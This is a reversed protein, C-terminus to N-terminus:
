IFFLTNVLSKFKLRSNKLSVEKQRHFIYICKEGCLDRLTNGDQVCISGDCIHTKLM